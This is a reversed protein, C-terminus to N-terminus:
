EKCGAKALVVGLKGAALTYGTMLLSGNRGDLFGVKGLTAAETFLLKEGASGVPGFVCGFLISFLTDCWNQKLLNM